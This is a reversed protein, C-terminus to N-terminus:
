ELSGPPIPYLRTTKGEVKCIRSDMGTLRKLHRGCRLTQSTSPVGPFKCRKILTATASLWQCLGAEYATQFNAWDINDMLTDLIEDIEEFSHNSEELRQNEDETLWWQAGGQYIMYVQRFLQQMDLNHEYNVSIVPITWFRSNGSLDTLFDVRNVSAAFVTRRPYQSFTRAYPMRLEDREMTLFAKLKPMDRRLTGELEGLECIWHSICEKVSDKNNTDLTIGDRIWQQPALARLWRTKGIHQRGQLTLVGRSSFPKERPDHCAAAVASILWKRILIHKLEESYNPPTKITDCLQIARDTRDWPRSLIWDKVLNVRNRDAETTVYQEIHTRPLGNEAMLSLLVGFSAEKGNDVSFTVGNKLKITIDKRIEDYQISIGYHSLLARFNEITPKPTGTTTWHQFDIFNGPQQQNEKPASEADKAFGAREIEARLAAGTAAIGHIKYYDNWDSGAAKNVLEPILAGTWGAVKCDLAVRAGAGNDNVDQGLYLPSNKYKARISEANATINGSNMCALVSCHGNLAEHVTLATAIGECVVVGSPIEIQAMIVFAGGSTGTAFRKHFRGNAPFIKHLAWFAGTEINHLPILLNSKKEIVAERLGDATLVGKAMLYVNESTATTASDYLALAKKLHEAREAAAVKTLHERERRKHEKESPTPPTWDGAPLWKYLRPKGKADNEHWDMLGGNARGDVHLFYGFSTEGVGDTNRRARHIKGDARLPHGRPISAGHSAMFDLFQNELESQSFEARM